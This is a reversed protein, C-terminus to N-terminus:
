YRQIETSSLIESSQLDLGRQTPIAETIRWWTMGAQVIDAGSLEHYAASIWQQISDHSSGVGM